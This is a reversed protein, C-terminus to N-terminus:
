TFRIIDNKKGYSSHPLKGGYKTVLIAKRIGLMMRQPTILYIPLAPQPKEKDKLRHYTKTSYGHYLFAIAIEAGDAM